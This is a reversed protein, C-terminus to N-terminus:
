MGESLKELGEAIACWRQYGEGYELVTSRDPEFIREDPKMTDIAEELISYVGSGVAACMAAGFGSVETIQPVYVPLDLVAPLIEALIRSKALGGGITVETIKHGSIEEIQLCNSKIAFCLNEMTARILHAKGIYNANLPVPFLFGGFRLGLHSMDMVTPGIFALVGEAGPPSQMAMQDMLQYIESDPKSSRDNTFMIESLWRYANGAEGASSEMIWKKPFVHCSTWIRAEPDFVPEDTVRQVPASWGIVVGTQRGDKIGMGILGCQTDPAGAAVSTGKSLGTEASSQTTVRGVPSGAPVLRPYIGHPLHLLDRLEDSWEGKRIDTLGLESAGCVECALEGCLKFVIWDSITLITAINRYVEPQHTEFWKLKAPAFLFSPMHGTISYIEKNFKSDISLGEMLARLDINPGAYLQKGKKDLLVMGERQSTASVGVIDKSNIGAEQITKRINQCVIQWLTDADFEKGLPAIDDPSDYTWENRYFSVVHGALDVLLCHVSSSGVDIALLYSAPMAM